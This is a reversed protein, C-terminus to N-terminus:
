ADLPRMPEEFPEGGFWSYHYGRPIKPPEGNPGKLASCNAATIIIDDMRKEVKIGDRFCEFGWVGCRQDNEILDDEDIIVGYERHKAIAVM